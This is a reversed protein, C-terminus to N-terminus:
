KKYMDTMISIVENINKKNDKVFEIIEEISPQKYM